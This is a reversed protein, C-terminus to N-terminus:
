SNGNADCEVLPGMAPGRSFVSALGAQLDFINALSALATYEGLSHGAYMSNTGLAGAERPRETQAYAVVALAVQTFQTLHLVGNPHIFKTGRVVLETPNDDIIQRISFGLATRTHRDARRWVERAAASADRDGRGMGEAQIGQGPY